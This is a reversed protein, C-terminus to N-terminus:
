LSLLKYVTLNEMCKGAESLMFHLPKCLVYM